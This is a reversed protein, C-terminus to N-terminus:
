FYPRDLRRKDSLRATIQGALLTMVERARSRLAAAFILGTFLNKGGCFYIVRIRSPRFLAAPPAM